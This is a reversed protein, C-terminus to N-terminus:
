GSGVRAGQTWLGRMGAGGATLTRAARARMDAMKPEHAGGLTATAVGDQGKRVGAHATSACARGCPHGPAFLCGRARWPRRAAARPPRSRGGGARQGSLLASLRQPSAFTPHPPPESAAPPAPAAGAWALARGTRPFRAAPRPVTAPPRRAHTTTTATIGPRQSFEFIEFFRTTLTDNSHKWDIGSTHYHTLLSPFPTRLHQLPQM